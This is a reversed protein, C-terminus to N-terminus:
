YSSIYYKQIKLGTQDKYRLINNLKETDLLNTCVTVFDINERLFQVLCLMSVLLYRSIQRIIQISHSITIALRCINKKVIYTISTALHCKLPPFNFGGSWKEFGYTLAICM